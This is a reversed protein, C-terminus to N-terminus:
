SVLQEVFRHIVAAVECRTATGQPALATGTRGSILEEGSAWQMATVAYASIQDRDSYRSLSASASTAYGKHAAYRFLISALQERTVSDGTGFRSGGVGNVIDNQQAWLVARTYWQDSAVDAFSSRGTVAPEGELRYLVTVLMARTMTGNPEFTDASTGEFLGSQVAFAVDEYFWDGREVDRFDISVSKAFEVSIRSSVTLGQYTYSTIAGMSRGDVIVNKVQYGSDPTFRFTVSGGLDSARLRSPSASGHSGVTLVDKLLEEVYAEPSIDRAELWTYSYEEVTYDDVYHWIVEDGDHLEWEKLGYSPHTGNVTYMWGSNRGNDFESLWYGGLCRPAQIDSVYNSGAGKHSLGADAMAEVFLDYVTAGTSLEYSTTEVWTIYKQHQGADSHSLDGILRFTVELEGGTPVRSMSDLASSLSLEVQERYLASRIASRASSRLERIVRWNATSYSDRDMCDYTWELKELAEDICDDLLDTFARKESRFSSYAEDLGKLAALEEGTLASYAEQLAQLQDYTAKDAALATFSGLQAVLDGAPQAPADGGSPWSDAASMDYLGPQQNLYRIYAVLAYFSQETAMQNYGGNLKHQFGGQEDVYYATLADIVSRGDKTWDAGAPDIQLATLAVIVQANGEATEGFGGDSGQLERLWALARDVAARVSADSGYYPALSQVVMSTTDQDAVEGSISWAGSALQGALLSQVLADRNSASYGAARFAMLAFATSNNGQWTTWTTDTLAALLDYGEFDGPAYGLATLALAIRANETPKNKELRGSNTSYGSEALYARLATLYAARSSDSIQDAWTSRALALMLWEGGISGTGPTRNLLTAATKQYATELSAPIVPGSQAPVEPEAALTRGPLLVLLLVTLLLSLMRKKM